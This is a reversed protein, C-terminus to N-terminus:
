GEIESIAGSREDYPCWERILGDEFRFLWAMEDSHAFEHETDDEWWWERHILAVALDRDSLIREVVIRQQVGERSRTAWERAQERGTRLGRGAHIEIAPHLTAVFEDLDRDNFASIFRRALGAEASQSDTSESM